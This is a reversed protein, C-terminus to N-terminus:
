QQLTWYKNIKRLIAGRVVHLKTKISESCFVGTHAPRLLSTRVDQSAQAIGLKTHQGATLSLLSGKIALLNRISM